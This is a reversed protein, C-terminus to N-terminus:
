RRVTRRRPFYFSQKIDVVLPDAAGDNIALGLDIYDQEVVTGLAGATEGLFLSFGHPSLTPDPGTTAGAALKAYRASVMGATLAQEYMAFMCCKLQLATDGITLNGTPATPASTSASTDTATGNVYYKWTGAERTLVVHYWTSTSLATATDMFAVGGMLGRYSGDVSVLLGWGNAGSNGMYFIKQDNLGIVQLEFLMEMAINNVATSPVARSLTEGGGLVITSVHDLLGSQSYDPTGAVTGINLGNVSSDVPNGSQDQMKYFVRPNDAQIDMEWETNVEEALFTRYDAGDYTDGGVYIGV